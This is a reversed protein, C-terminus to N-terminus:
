GLDGKEKEVTSIPDGPIVTGKKGQAFALPTTLELTTFKAGMVRTNSLYDQGVAAKSSRSSGFPVSVAEVEQVGCVQVGCSM